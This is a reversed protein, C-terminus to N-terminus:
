SVRVSGTGINQELWLKKSDTVCKKNTQVGGGGAGKSSPYEVALSFACDGM